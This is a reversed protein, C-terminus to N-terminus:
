LLESVNCVHFLGNLHNKYHIDMHLFSRRLSILVIALMRPHKRRTLDEALHSTHKMESILFFPETIIGLNLLPFHPAPLYIVQGLGHPEQPTSSPSLGLGSPGSGMRTLRSQVARILHSVLHLPFKAWCKACLSSGILAFQLVNVRLCALALLLECVKWMASPASLVNLTIFIVPVMHNTFTGKQNSRQRVTIGPNWGQRAGEPVPHSQAM